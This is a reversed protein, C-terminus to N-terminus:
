AVQRAYGRVREQYRQIGGRFDGKYRKGVKKLCRECFRINIHYHSIAEMGCIECPPKFPSHMVQLIFIEGYRDTIRRVCRQCAWVMNTYTIDDTKTCIHCETQQMRKQEMKRLRANATGDRYMHRITKEFEKDDRSKGTVM